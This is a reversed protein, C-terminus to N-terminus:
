REEKTPARCDNLSFTILLFAALPSHWLSLATYYSDLRLIHSVQYQPSPVGV